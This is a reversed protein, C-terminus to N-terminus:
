KVRQALAREIAARVAEFNKNVDVNSFRLVMLGLGELYATRRQDYALEEEEYHQAGDLEIVLKAQDCYFDVIYPGIVRQRNFRLPCSRLYDYWLLSEQRTASSRLLRAQQRLRKDRPLIM